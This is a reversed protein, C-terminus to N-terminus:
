GKIKYSIPLRFTLYSKSIEKPFAKFNQINKFIKLISNNLVKYNTKKEFEIKEIKGNSLVKLKVLCDGQLKMVKAIRPYFKNKEVVSRIYSIYLNIHKKEISNDEQNKVLRKQEIKDKSKNVQQKPQEKRNNEVVEEKNIKIKKEINKNAKVVKKLVKKQKKNKEISEVKPTFEQKKELKVFDINTIDKSINRMKVKTEKNFEYSIIFVHTLFVSVFILCFYFVKFM